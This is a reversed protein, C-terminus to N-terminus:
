RLLQRAALVAAGVRRRDRDIARQGSVLRVQFRAAGIGVVGLMRAQVEGSPKERASSVAASSFFHRSLRRPVIAGAVIL